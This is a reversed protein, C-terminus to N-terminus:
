TTLLRFYSARHNRPFPLLIFHILHKNPTIKATGAFSLLTKIYSKLRSGSDCYIYFYSFSPDLINRALHYAFIAGDAIGM